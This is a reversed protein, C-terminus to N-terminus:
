TVKQLENNQQEFHNPGQHDLYLHIRHRNFWMSMYNLIDQQASFRTAYNYWHGQEQKIGILKFKHDLLSM